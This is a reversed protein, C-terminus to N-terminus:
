PSTPKTLVYGFKKANAVAPHAYGAPRRAFARIVNLTIARADQECGPDVPGCGMGELWGISGTHFVGAHSRTSYYVMDTHVHSGDGCSIRSHALVQLNGPTPKKEWVWDVEGSVVGAIADGNRLGTGDYIWAKANGVVMDQPSVGYCGYMSGLLSTEPQRLPPDRWKVTVEADNVGSLPDEAASKYCVIRRGPGLPSDKVRIHWYVANAGFFALNVGAARAKTVGSRMATSWYEDHATFLVGRHRRLLGPRAHLDLDTLYTLDFGQSEVLGILPLDDLLRGAGRQQDYPRDYSVVTARDSSGGSPGDYLSADGWYNYAQWTTVPNVIAIPARSADDRIVLPVYSQGGTSAVLKLLYDGQVWRPGITITLSRKWPAEVMHTKPDMTPRRQHVGNLAASSWVLRAGDGGYWGLRYADVHYTAATTDVYLRVKDGRQASVRDAYGQIDTPAASAIRWDRTGPKANEEIVWAATISAHAARPALTLLTAGLALCLLVAGTRGRRAVDTGEPRM